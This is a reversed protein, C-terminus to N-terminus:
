KWPHSSAGHDFPVVGSPFRNLLTAKTHKNPPRM